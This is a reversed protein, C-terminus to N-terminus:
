GPYNLGSLTIGTNYWRTGVRSYLKSGSILYIDDGGNGASLGTAGQLPGLTEEIGGQSVIIPTVEEKAGLNALTMKSDSLWRVSNFVATGTPVNEPTSLRAPVGNDDRTIATLFLHSQGDKQAVVAVRVGDRAVRLDTVTFGSLWSASVDAGTGAQGTPQYARVTQPQGKDPTKVSWLWGATDFTPPTFAYGTDTLTVDRGPGTSLLQSGSANLFSFQHKTSSVAPYRPAYSSTDPIGEIAATQIKNYWVLRDKLVGVQDSDVQPNTTVQIFKDAGGTIEPIPRNETLIQISDAGNVGTLSLQLQQKIQQRNIQKLTNWYALPFEVQATKDIVAVTPSSLAADKGFASAVSDKLYPAPGNLLATAVNTALKPSKLFWRTDAVAHAFDASYFYLNRQELLVKADTSSILLEDPVSSLRYQGREKVVSVKVTRPAANTLDRRLGNQDIEVAPQYQLEFTNPDATAVVKPFSSYVTTLKEPKWAKGKEETLFERAQTLNDQVGKNSQLYGDVIEAPTAGEKPGSLRYLYPLDNTKAPADITHVASSRPIQACGAAMLTLSVVVGLGARRWRGATRRRRDPSVRQNSRAWLPTSSM